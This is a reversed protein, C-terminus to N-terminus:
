GQRVGQRLPVADSYLAQSGGGVRVRITSVNYLAMIFRLFVGRIGARSLKAFLTHHPVMDYAKKLDVFVLFTPLDLIHRRQCIDLVMAAQTVCEELSRFGAQARSFLNHTEAVDNLRTGMMVCIIKLLTAMLSIGRYNNTDALDGSKAISVVISEAWEDVVIGNLFADNCIRLMVNSMPSPRPTNDKPHPRELLAATWPETPVGDGGPAKHSQMKLLSSWLEEITFADDLETLHTRQPPDLFKWYTPDQGHGSIDTALTGYHEAWRASIAALDTLM